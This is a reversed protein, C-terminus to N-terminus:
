GKYEFPMRHLLDDYTAEPHKLAYDIMASGFARYIPNEEVWSVGFKAKWDNFSVKGDLVLALGHFQMPVYRDRSRCMGVRAIEHDPAKSSVLSRIQDDMTIIELVIASGKTPQFSPDGVEEATRPKLTVIEGTHTNGFLENLVPLIDEFEFLNNPFTVGGHGDDQAYSQNITVLLRQACAAKLVDAVEYPKVGIGDLRSVVGVANRTHLTSLVFHGTLGAQVAVSATEGDRIEGVLIVNPSSRLAARLAESFGLDKGLKTQIVGPLEMEVPDEVTLIRRQPTNLHSLMAYLTTTKGEGTPGTMLMMGEPEEAIRMLLETQMETAGLGRPSTFRAPYQIRLTVSQGSVTPLRNLRFSLSRTYEPFPVPAGKQLIDSMQMEPTYGEFALGLTEHRLRIAADAAADPSSRDRSNVERGWTDLLNVLKKFGPEDLIMDVDECRKNTGYRIRFLPTGGRGV